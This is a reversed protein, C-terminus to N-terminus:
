IRTTSASSRAFRGCSRRHASTRVWGGSSRATAASSRSCAPKAAASSSTTRPSACTAKTSGSIRDSMPRRTSTCGTTAAGRSQQLQARGQHREACGTCVGVRRHPREGGLGLRDGREVVGRHASRRRADRRGGEAAHPRYADPDAHQRQERQAHERALLLRRSLQGAALRPASAGVVGHWGRADPDARQSLIALPGERRLRPSDLRAIGSAASACREGVHRHRRAARAGSRRRLQQRGGLAQGRQREHRHGAGRAHRVAVAGHIREM